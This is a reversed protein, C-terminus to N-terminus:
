SRPTSGHVVLVQIGYWWTRIIFIYNLLIDYWLCVTLSCFERDEEFLIDGGKKAKGKELGNRAHENEDVVTRLQHDVWWTELVLGSKATGVDRLWIEGGSALTREMASGSQDNSCGALFREVDTLIRESRLNIETTVRNTPHVYYVTGDPLHYELWGLTYLMRIRPPAAPHPHWSNVNGNSTMSQSASYVPPSISVLGHPCTQLHSSPIHKSPKAPRSLLPLTERYVPFLNLFCFLFLFVSQTEVLNGTNGSKLISM